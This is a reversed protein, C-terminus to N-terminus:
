GIAEPLTITRTEGQILLKELESIKVDAAVVTVKVINSKEGTSDKGVLEVEGPKLATVTLTPADLAVVTTSLEDFTLPGEPTATLTRKEGVSMPLMAPELKPPDAIADFACVSMLFAVIWRQM